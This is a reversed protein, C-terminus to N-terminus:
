QVLCASGTNAHSPSGGGELNSLKGSNCARMLGPPLRVAMKQLWLRKLGELYEGLPPFTTPPASLCPHGSSVLPLLLGQGSPSHLDVRLSTCLSRGSRFM